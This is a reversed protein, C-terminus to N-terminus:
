KIKYLFYNILFSFSKYSLMINLICCSSKNERQRTELEGLHIAPRNVLIDQHSCQNQQQALTSRGSHPLKTETQCISNSCFCDMQLMESLTLDIIPFDRITTTLPGTYSDRSIRSGAM